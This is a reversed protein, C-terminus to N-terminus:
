IDVLVEESRITLREVVLTWAGGPPAVEQFKDLSDSELVAELPGALDDTCFEVCGTIIRDKVKTKLPNM